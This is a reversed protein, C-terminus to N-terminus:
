FENFKENTNDGLRESPKSCWILLLRRVML